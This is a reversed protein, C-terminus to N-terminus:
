SSVHHGHGDTSPDMWRSKRKATLLFILLILYAVCLRLYFRGSKRLITGLYCLLMLLGGGALLLFTGLGLGAIRTPPAEVLETTNM